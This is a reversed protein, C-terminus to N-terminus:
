RAMARHGLDFDAKEFVPLDSGASQRSRLVCEAGESSAFAGRKHNEDMGPERAAAQRIPVLNRRLRDVLAYPWEGRAPIHSAEYFLQDAVRARLAQEDESAM